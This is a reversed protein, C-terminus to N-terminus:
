SWTSPPYAHLGCLPLGDGRLAVSADYVHRGAQELEAEHGPWSIVLLVRVPWRVDAELVGRATACTGTGGPTSSRTSWGHQGCGFDYSRDRIGPMCSAACVLAAGCHPVCLYRCHYVIIVPAFRAGPELPHVPHAIARQRIALHYKVTDIWLLSCRGTMDLTCIGVRGDLRQSDEVCCVEAITSGDDCLQADLEGCRPLGICSVNIDVRPKPRPAEATEDGKPAICRLLTVSRLVSSAAVCVISCETASVIALSSVWSAPFLQVRFQLLLCGASNRWGAVIGEQCGTVLDVLTAANGRQGCLRVEKAVVGVCQVGLRHPPSSRDSGYWQPKSAVPWGQRAEEVSRLGSCNWVQVAGDDGTTVVEDMAHVGGARWSEVTCALRQLVIIRDARSSDVRQSLWLCTGHALSIAMVQSNHSVLLVAGSQCAQRPWKNGPPLRVRWLMRGSPRHHALAHSNSVSWVTSGNTCLADVNDAHGCFEQHTACGHATYERLINEHAVWLSHASVCASVAEFLRRSQAPVSHKQAPDRSPVRNVAAIQESPVLGGSDGRGRPIHQSRSGAQASREVLQCNLTTAQSVAVAGGAHLSEEQMAVPISGAQNRVVAVRVVSLSHREVALYLPTRQGHDLADMSAGHQLLIGFVVGNDYFAAFHAASQKWQDVTHVDAGATVLLTAIRGSCAIRATRAAESEIAQKGPGMAACMLAVQGAEDVANPNAGSQLLLRVVRECGRACAVHLSTKGTADVEDVTFGGQLLKQAVEADGLRSAAHLPTESRRRRDGACVCHTRGTQLLCDVVFSSRRCVAVHLPSHGLLNVVSLAGQGILTDMLEASRSWRAAYHLPTDGHQTPLNVDAGNRALFCALSDHGAAIAAHLATERVVDRSRANADAGAQLLSRAVEVCGRRAALLLPAEVNSADTNAGHLVLVDVVRNHSGSAAFHLAGWGVGPVPQALSNVDAGHQILALACEVHGNSCAYHLATMGQFNAARVQAGSELLSQVIALYGGECAIDLPRRERLAPQNVHAEQAGADLLLHLVRACGAAAAEHLPGWVGCKSPAIAAEARVLAEVTPLSQAKVAAVLPLSSACNSVRVLQRMGPTRCLLKLARQPQGGAAASALMRACWDPDRLSVGSPCPSAGSRRASELSARQSFCAYDEYSCGLADLCPLPTRSGALASVAPTEHHEVDCQHGALLHHLMERNGAAAAVHVPAVGMRSSVLMCSLQQCCMLSAADSLSAECARGANFLLTHQVSDLGRPCTNALVADLSADLVPLSGCLSSVVAHESLAQGRQQSRQVHWRLKKSVLSFHLACARECTASDCAGAHLLIALLVATRPGWPMGLFRDLVSRGVNDRKGMGDAEHTAIAHVMDVASRLLVASSARECLRQLPGAVLLHLATSGTHDCVSTSAGCRLLACVTAPRVNFDPGLAGCAVHLPTWGRKNLQNFDANHVRLLEIVNVHDYQAAFHVATNGNRSSINVNARARLLLRLCAVAGSRAAAHVASVGVPRIAPLAGAQLLMHVAAQNQRKCAVSIPTVFDTREVNTAAGAALLLKVISAAAGCDISAALHLPTEGCSTSADVMAGAELLVVVMTQCGVRCAIHLPAEGTTDCANVDAGSRLLLEVIAQHGERTALALASRSDARKVDVNSRCAGLLVRIAAYSGREAAVHLPTAGIDDTITLDAGHNALVLMSEKHNYFAAAHAPSPWRACRVNADFDSCAALAALVRVQNSTVLQEIFEGQTRCGSLPVQAGAATLCKLVSVNGAEIAAAAPSQQAADVCSINAGADLLLKVVEQIRAAGVATAAIHLACRGAGDQANVDAGLGLLQSVVDPAHRLQLAVHLPFRGTEDALNVAEKAAVTAVIGSQGAELAVVLPTRTRSDTAERSAGRDILIQAVAIRGHSAAFHLPTQLQANTCNADAGRSLLLACVAMTGGAAALHLAQAGLVDQCSLSAGMELLAEVAALHGHESALHLATKGARDCIGLRPQPEHACLARVVHGHGNASAIMVPSQGWVNCYDVHSGAQLLAAVINGHGREAAVFLPTARSDRGLDLECGAACLTVVAKEHGSEAALHLPTCGAHDGQDMRFGAGLICSLCNHFGRMAAVHAPTRGRADSQELDMGADALAQLCRVHGYAAAVHAATRSPAAHALDAGAHCLLRVVNHRGAQAAVHLPSAGASGIANVLAGAELLDKISSQRGRRAAAHLPTRGAHDRAHVPAGVKLLERLALRHGGAAALHLPTQGNADKCALDEGSAGQVLARVCQENGALVAVHLATRGDVTVASRGVGTRLVALIASGNNTEAAYHLATWGDHSQASPDSSTSSPVENSAAGSAVSSSM